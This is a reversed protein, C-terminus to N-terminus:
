QPIVFHYTDESPDWGDFLPQKINYRNNDAVEVDKVKIKYDNFELILIIEEEEGEALPKAKSFDLTLAKRLKKVDRALEIRSCGLKGTYPNTGCSAKSAVEVINTRKTIDIRTTEPSNATRRYVYTGNTDGKHALILSKIGPLFEGKNTPHAIEPSDSVKEAGYLSLSLCLGLLIFLKSM